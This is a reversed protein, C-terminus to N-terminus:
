KSSVELGMAREKYLIDTLGLMREPTMSEFRLFETPTAGTFDKYDKVLHQYDCYGCAIAIELWDKHPYANKMNYAKTIRIIRAYTKPNVGVGQYFKRQFQKSSLCAMDALHDMSYGDGQRLMQQSVIDIPSCTTKSQRLLRFGFDQIISLLEDYGKAHQLRDLTIEIAKGFVLTADIHQNVLEHAPIGTVRHMGRPQFVIQVNLFSSGNFQYVLSTRQGTLVVSPQDYRKDGPKQIAWFDRVFFHLISEPKPIAHKVPIANTGFEFHCIRYWQILERLAPHPLFDRLLM